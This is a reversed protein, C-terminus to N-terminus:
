RDGFDTWELFEGTPGDEPEYIIVARGRVDDGPTVQGLAPEAVLQGRDDFVMHGVETEMDTARLAEILADPEVSGARKVADAIVQISSYAQFVEHGPPLSGFKEEYRADFDSTDSSLLMPQGIVYDGTAGLAELSRPEFATQFMEYVVRPNYDIQEMAQMFAIYNPALGYFKVVDAGTQKAKTVLATFDETAPDFKEFMAVKVGADKLRTNSGEAGTVTYPSDAYLIAVSKPEIESTLFDDAVTDSVEVSAFLNLLWKYDNAVIAPDSAFGMVNPKGAQEAVQSMVLSQASGYSGIIVDAGDSICDRVVGGATAPDAADDEVSLDLEVEGEANITEVALEMGSKANGGLEAIAGSLPMSGCVKVAIAEGDGESGDATTDGSDDSGGCGAVTLALIAAFLVAIRGWKRMQM